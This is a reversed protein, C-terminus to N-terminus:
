ENRHRNPDVIYRFRLYGYPTAYCDGTYIYGKPAIPPRELSYVVACETPKEKEPQIFNKTHKYRKGKGQETTWHDFCYNAVNTYDHGHDTKTVHDINHDRFQRCERVEGWTWCAKLTEPPIGNSLLHFHIRSTTKGRGMYVSLKADPNYKRLRRWFIDRIKKADDFDYIENENNFTFTSFYSSPGFNANILLAHNRKAIHRKHEEREEETKFRPRPNKVSIGRTTEDQQMYVVQDCIEGAFIRQKVM